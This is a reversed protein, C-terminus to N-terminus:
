HRLTLLAPNVADLGTLLLFGFSGITARHRREGAITADESTKCKKKAEKTLRRLFQRDENQTTATTNKEPGAHRLFSVALRLFPFFLVFQQNKITLLRM